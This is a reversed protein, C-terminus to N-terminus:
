RRVMWVGQHVVPGTPAGSPSGGTPEVSVAVAEIAALTLDSAAPFPLEFRARGAPLLGLSVPIGGTPIAWLEFSQDPGTPPNALAHVTLSTAGGRPSRPLIEVLWIARQSPDALVAFAGTAGARHDIEPRPELPTALVIVILALVASSSALAIGRWLRIDTWWKAWSGSGQASGQASGPASGPAPTAERIANWVREPPRHPPILDYMPALRDRWQQVELALEPDAAIWREFRRRVRETLMGLVYEGCLQSRIEPDDRNM